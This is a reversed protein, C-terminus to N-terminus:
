NFYCGFSEEIESPAVSKIPELGFDKEQVVAAASEESPRILPALVETIKSLDANGELLAAFGDSCIFDLTKGNLGLLSLLPKFSAFDISKLMDKIQSFRNGSLLIAVLVLLIANM